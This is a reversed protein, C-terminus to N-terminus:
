TLIHVHGSEDVLYPALAELAARCADDSSAVAAIMVRSWQASCM